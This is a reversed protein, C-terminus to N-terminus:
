LSNARKRSNVIIFAAVAGAALILMLIFPLNDISIGTPTVTERTNTFAASNVGSDGITKTEISLPSNILGQSNTPEGGNEIVTVSPIYDADAAETVEYTAGVHTDIFSLTQNHKLKLTASAGSTIEIYDGFTDTKISGGSVLNDASTEVDGTSSDIVFVKYKQADAILTPKNVTLTFNFYKEKNALYGKVTKSIALASDDAATGVSQKIFTNLFIMKSYDDPVDPDGGPRPDVKDGQEQESSDVPTVVKAGIASIYLGNDGNEVYVVLDYSADSYSMTEGTNVTYTGSQQTVTYVYVGAYPWNAGAFINGSEKYVTKVGDAVPLSSTGSSLDISVPGVTPMVALDEADDSEDVSKKTVNFQFTANPSTTGDPMQLVANISAEVPNDEDGIIPTGEAAFATTTGAFCMMAVILLSLIARFHIKKKM